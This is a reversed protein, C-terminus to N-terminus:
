RRPWYLSVRLGSDNALEIRIHHAQCVAAVLALGLGTGPTNRSAEARYFRQFVQEQQSDPIGPGDDQVSVVPAEEELSLHIRVRKGDPAHTLANELLNSVAQMWLDRDGFVLCETVDTEMTLAIDREAFVPEYLELINDLSTRLDFDSFSRRPAGQELQSIRLLASFTELLQDAEGSLREIDAQSTETKQQLFEIHNRLRTLPTRLDHAINDSVERVSSMLSGIHDLMDNIALGIRDFDDGNERAPLRVNLDGATVQDTVTAVEQLRRTFRSGLWAALVLSVLFTVLLSRNRMSRLTRITDVVTDDIVGYRLVSGDALRLNSYLCWTDSQVLASDRSVRAATLNGFPVRAGRTEAINTVIVEGDRELRFCRDEEHRALYDLILPLRDLPTADRWAERDRLWALRANMLPAITAARAPLLAGLMRDRVAEAETITPEFGDSEGLLWLQTNVARLSAGSAEMSERRQWLRELAPELAQFLRAEDFQERWSEDPEFEFEPESAIALAEEIEGGVMGEINDLLFSESFAVLLFAVAATMLWLIVALLASWRFSTSRWFKLEPASSM